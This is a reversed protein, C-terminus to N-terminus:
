GAGDISPETSRGPVPATPDAVCFGCPGTVDPLIASLPGQIVNCFREM